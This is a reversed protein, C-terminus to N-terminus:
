FIMVFFLKEVLWFKLEYSLNLIIEEYIFRYNLMDYDKDLLSIMVWDYVVYVVLDMDSEFCIYFIVVCCSVKFYMEIYGEIEEM